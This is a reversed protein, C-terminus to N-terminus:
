YLPTIPLVLVEGPANGLQLVMAAVTGGEVTVTLAGHFETTVARPFLEEITRAIHGHAMLRLSTIGRSIATGNADRLTLNLTTASGTNHLAVLTTLEAEESRKVPSIFAHWPRSPGSGASGVAPISFRLVGGVHGENLLARASGDVFAGRGSTTFVASGASAIDFPVSSVPGFGILDIELDNGDDDFFALNGKARGPLPNILIISTGSNDGGTVHAFYLTDGAPPPGMPIVPSTSFAGADPGLQMVTGAILGGEVALTGTFEVIGPFFEHVLGSRHANASLDIETAEIENGETTRLTLKLATEAGGNMITIGTDMGRALDVMVPVLFGDMLQSEGVGTSGLDPFAAQVVGGVPRDVFLQVSGAVPGGLGDTVLEISGLPPITFEFSSQASNGNISLPLPTGDDAFFGVSGRSSSDRSPNTFRLSSSSNTGNSIQTFFHSYLILELRTLNYVGTTM